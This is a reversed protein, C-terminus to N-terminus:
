ESTFSSRSRAASRWALRWAGSFQHRASATLSRMGGEGAGGALRPLTVSEVPAHEVRYSHATSM